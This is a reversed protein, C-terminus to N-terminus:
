SVSLLAPDFWSISIRPGSRYEGNLGSSSIEDRRRRRDKGFAEASLKWCVFPKLIVSRAPATGPHFVVPPFFDPSPGGLPRIMASIGREGDARKTIGRKEEVAVRWYTSLWTFGASATM